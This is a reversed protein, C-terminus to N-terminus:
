SFIPAGSLAVIMLVLAVSFYLSGALLISPKSHLVFFGLLPLVQLAHMGFFHAIRLDGYNLSWNLFMIGPGGDPGGVTHSLMAAMIGGEFAFIVFLILGLRIGWLYAKPLKPFSGQFFLYAIYGTWITMLSIAIGMLSFMLGNFASSINFHSLEGLGAKISIYVVEFALVIIVVWSYVKVAKQEKLHHMFWAMSASFIASSIWFKLPKIWANIGMVETDSIFILVLSALSAALCLLTFYYLAQNRKRLEEFFRM